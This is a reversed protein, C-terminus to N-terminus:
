GGANPATSPLSLWGTLEEDRFIAQGGRSGHVTWSNKYLDPPCRRARHVFGHVDIVIAEDPASEIPMWEGVWGARRLASAVREAMIDLQPGGFGTEYDNAELVEAILAKVEAM